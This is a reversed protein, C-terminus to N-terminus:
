KLTGKRLDRFKWYYNRIAVYGIFLAILPWALGLGIAIRINRGLKQDGYVDIGIFVAVGLWVGLGILFYTM